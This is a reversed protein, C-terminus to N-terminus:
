SVFVNRYDKVWDEVATMKIGFRIANEAIDEDFMVPYHPASDAINQYHHQLSEASSKDMLTTMIQGFEAPPLAYYNLDLGLGQSIRAALASGTLNEMGSVRVIKGEMEKKGLASAAFASADRTAIWGVPMEEPLPYALRSEKKVYDTTYPALLNELYINSEIITYPVGSEELHAKVDFKVDNIVNGTKGKELYGSTNWVLHKVGENKAADILNKSFTLGDFPNALSAPIVFSVYDMGETAKSLSSLDSMDVLVPIAGLNELQEAKQDSRTATFVELDKSKLIGIIPRQQSGTAGYVLVKKM